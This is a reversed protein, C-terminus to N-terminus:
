SFSHLLIKITILSILRLRLPALGSFGLYLDGPQVVGPCSVVDTNREVDFEYSWLFALIANKPLSSTLKNEVINFFVM